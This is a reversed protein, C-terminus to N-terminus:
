VGVTRGNNEVAKRMEELDKVLEVRNNWKAVASHIDTGEVTGICCSFAHLESHPFRGNKKPPIIVYTPLKQCHPCVKLM